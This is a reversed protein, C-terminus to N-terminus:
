YVYEDDNETIMNKILKSDEDDKKNEKDLSKNKRSEMIFYKDSTFYLIPIPILSIVKSAFILFPLKSNEKSTIGLKHTIISGTLRGFVFGIHVGTMYFSYVTGELNEPCAACALAQVPM